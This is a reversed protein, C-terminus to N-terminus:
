FVHWWFHFSTSIDTYPLSSKKKRERQIIIGKKKKANYLLPPVLFISLSGNGCHLFILRKM